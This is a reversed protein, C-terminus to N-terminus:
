VAVCPTTGPPEPKGTLPPRQTVESVGAEGTKSRVPPVPAILTEAGADQVHNVAIVGTHGVTVPPNELVPGPWTVYATGALGPVVARETVRVIPPSLATIRWFGQCM